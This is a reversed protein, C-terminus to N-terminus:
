PDQKAASNYGPPLTIVKFMHLAASCRCPRRPQHKKKPSNKAIRAPLTRPKALILFPEPHYFYSLKSNFQSYCAGSWSFAKSTKIILLM